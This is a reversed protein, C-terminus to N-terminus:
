IMKTEPAEEIIGSGCVATKLNTKNKLSENKNDISFKCCLIINGFKKGVEM